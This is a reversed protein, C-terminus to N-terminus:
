PDTQMRQVDLVREQREWAVQGNRAGQRVSRYDGAIWSLGVVVVLWKVGLLLGARAAGKIDSWVQRSGVSGHDGVLQDPPTAGDTGSSLFTVFPWLQTGATLTRM